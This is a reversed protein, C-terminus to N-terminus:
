EDVREVMDRFMNQFTEMYDEYPVYKTLSNELEQIRREYSNMKIFVLVLGIFVFFIIMQVPMSLQTTIM